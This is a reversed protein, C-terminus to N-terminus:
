AHVGNLIERVARDLEVSAPEVRSSHLCVRAAASAKHVTQVMGLHLEDRGLQVDNSYIPKGPKLSSYSAVNEPGVNNQWTTDEPTQDPFPVREWVERRYMLSTGLAYNPNHSDYLLVKDRQEDYLPMDYYGVVQAGTAQMFEVQESLRSPASWDDHDFHAILDFDQGTSRIMLNRLAGVTLNMGRTDMPLWHKNPYTQSEVCAKVREWYEPMHTPTICCVSPESM